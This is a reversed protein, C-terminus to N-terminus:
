KLITFPFFINTPTVPLMAQMLVVANIRNNVLDPQSTFTIIVGDAKFKM